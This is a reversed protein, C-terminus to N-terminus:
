NKASINVRTAKSEKEYENNGYFLLKPLCVKLFTKRFFFHTWYCAKSINAVIGDYMEFEYKSGLVKEFNNKIGLSKLIINQGM